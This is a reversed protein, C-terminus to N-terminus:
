YKILYQLILSAPQITQSRGFIANSILANFQLYWQKSYDVITVGKGTANQDQYLSFCGQNNGFISGASFGTFGTINPGKM